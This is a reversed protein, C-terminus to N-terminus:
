DPRRNWNGVLYVIRGYLHYQITGDITWRPPPGIDIYSRVDAETRLPLLQKAVFVAGSEIEIRRSDDVETATNDFLLAQALQEHDNLHDFRARLQCEAEKPKDVRTLSRLAVGANLYYDAGFPSRQLNIVRITEPSSLYWHSSARQFGLPSLVSNLINRLRASLVSAAM